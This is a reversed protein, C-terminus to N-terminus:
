RAQREIVKNTTYSVEAAGSGGGWVAVEVGVGNGVRVENYVITM